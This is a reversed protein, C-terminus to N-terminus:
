KSKNKVRIIVDIRQLKECSTLIPLGKLEVNKIKIDTLENNDENFIHHHETINTDFYSCGSDVIIEKLLDASTFANLVNYVTALSIKQGSLIAESHLGEATVHRNKGDFLLRSLVLRQKTPRLGASKLTRLVKSYPRIKDM